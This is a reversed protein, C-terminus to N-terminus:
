GLASTWLLLVALLLLQISSKTIIIIPARTSIAYNLKSTCLVSRNSPDRCKGQIERFDGHFESIRNFYSIKGLDWQFGWCAAQVSLRNQTIRLSPSLSASPTTRLVDDYIRGPDGPGLRLLPTALLVYLACAYMLVAACVCTCTRVCIICPQKARMLIRRTRTDRAGCPKRM